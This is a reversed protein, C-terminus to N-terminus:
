STLESSAPSVIESVTITSLAGGIVICPSVNTVCVNTVRSAFRSNYKTTINTWNETLGM